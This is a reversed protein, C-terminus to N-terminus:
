EGRQDRHDIRQGGHRREDRQSANTRVTKRSAPFYRNWKKPMVTGANWIM